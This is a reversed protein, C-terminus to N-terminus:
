CGHTSFVVGYWMSFSSQETGVSLSIYSYIYPSDGALLSIKAAHKFKQSPSWPGINDINVSIIEYCLSIYIQSHVWLNKM